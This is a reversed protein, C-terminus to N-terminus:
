IGGKIGASIPHVKEPVRFRYGPMGPRLQAVRGPLGAVPQPRQAADVLAEHAHGQGPLLQSIWGVLGTATLVAGVVSFTLNTAIGGLLLTVGLALVLPWITAVPMEVMESDDHSTM